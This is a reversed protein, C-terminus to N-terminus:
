GGGQSSNVAYSAPHFAFCTLGSQWVKTEEGSLAFARLAVKRKVRRSGELTEMDRFQAVEQAIWRNPDADRM